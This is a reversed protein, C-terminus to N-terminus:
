FASSLFCWILVDRKQLKEMQLYSLEQRPGELALAPHCLEFGCRPALAILLGLLSSVVLPVNSHFHQKLWVQPCTTTVEM